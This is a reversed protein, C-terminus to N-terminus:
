ISFNSFRQSPVIIKTEPKKTKKKINLPLLYHIIFSCERSGSLKILMQNKSLHQLKKAKLQTEQRCKRGREWRTFHPYHYIVCGVEDLWNSTKLTEMCIKLNKSKTRHVSGNTIQYPCQMSNISQRPYYLWKLWTSEKLGLIHYINGM